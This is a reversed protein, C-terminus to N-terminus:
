LGVMSLTRAFQIANLVQRVLKQDISPTTREYERLLKELVFIIHTM